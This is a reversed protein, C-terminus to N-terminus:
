YIHGSSFFTKENAFGRKFSKGYTAALGDHWKFSRTSDISFSYKEDGIGKGLAADPVTLLTCWGVQAINHSDASGIFEVEYFYKGSWLSINLISSQFIREKHKSSELDLLMTGRVPARRIVRIEKGDELRKRELFVSDWDIRKDEKIKIIEGFTKYYLEIQFQNWSLVTTTNACWNKSVTRLRVVEDYSLFTFIHRWIEALATDAM